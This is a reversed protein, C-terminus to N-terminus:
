LGHISKEQNAQTTKFKATLWPTKPWKKIGDMPALHPYRFAFEMPPMIGPSGKAFIGPAYKGTAKSPNCGQHSRMIEGWPKIERAFEYHLYLRLEDEPCDKFNWEANM